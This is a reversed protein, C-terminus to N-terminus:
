VTLYPAIANFTAEGIGSINKIEEVSTYGGIQERYSIIAAARAEGIGDVSMLEQATCTNLNIPYTVSLESSRKTNIGSAESVSDTVANEDAITEDSFSPSYLQTEPESAVYHNSVKPQSLAIYAFVASLLLLAVGILIDSQKKGNNKNNAARM